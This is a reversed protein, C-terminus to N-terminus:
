PDIAAITKALTEGQPDIAAITKSLTEGQPDIAAITKSLTEGQPDIAAITKSLTERCTERRVPHAVLGNSDVDAYTVREPLSPRSAPPRSRTPPLTARSGRTSSDRERTPVWM